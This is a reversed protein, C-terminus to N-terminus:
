DRKDLMQPGVYLDYLIHDLDLSGCYALSLTAKLRRLEAPQIGSLMPLHDTPTPRQCGTVIRLADNLDNDILRTYAGLCWVPANYEDTSYVLSLAATQLINTGAGWKLGVLRRILTVRSTLKGRM